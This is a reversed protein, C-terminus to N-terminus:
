RQTYGQSLVLTVSRFQFHNTGDQWWLSSANAQPVSSLTLDPTLVFNQGAFTSILATGDTQIVLSGGSRGAVQIALGDTDLFAPRLIQTLGASDTFRYLGDAGQALGPKGGTTVVYDPRAVYVTNGSLITIVGQANITASLGLANLAAGFEVPNFLAPIVTFSGCSTGVNMANTGSLRIANGLSTDVTADIGYFSLLRGGQQIKANGTPMQGLYVADAGFLARATDQLCGTMVPGKGSTLDLIAPIPGFGPLPQIGLQLPIPKTPAPTAPAVTSQATVNGLFDGWIVQPNAGPNAITNVVTDTSTDIVQIGAGLGKRPVYLVTGNKSMGIGPLNAGMNLTKTITGSPNMVILNNGSYDAVYIKSGDPTVALGLPNNVGTTAYNTVTGTTLDFKSVNGGGYNSVYGFGSATSIAINYATNGVTALTTLANGATTDMSIVKSTAGNCVILLNTGNFVSQLPQAAGAPCVSAVTTTVTGSAVDIVSISNASYNSTYATSSDPSFTVNVPSNGTSIATGKVNTSTNIPWVRNGAFDAVYAVSGNPAVAASYTTGLATIVTTQTQTGTDIVSASSNGQNPIYAFTGALASGGLGALLGLACGLKAMAPLLSPSSNDAVRKHFFSTM